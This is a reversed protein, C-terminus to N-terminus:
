ISLETLISHYARRFYGEALFVDQFTLGVIYKPTDGRASYCLMFHRKM